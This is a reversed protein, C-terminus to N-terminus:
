VYAFFFTYLHFILLCSFFHLGSVVMSNLTRLNLDLAGSDTSLLWSITMNEGIVASTANEPNNTFFTLLSKLRERGQTTEEVFIWGLFCAGLLIGALTPGILRCDTPLQLSCSPSLWGRALVGSLDDHQLEAALSTLKRLGQGEVQAM